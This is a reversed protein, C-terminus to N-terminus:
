AVPFADKLPLQFRGDTIGRVTFDEDIAEWHLASGSLRPTVASLQDNWARALLKFRDAPCGIQRGDTLEM